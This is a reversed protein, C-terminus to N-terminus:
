MADTHIVPVTSTSSPASPKIQFSDILWRDNEKKVKIVVPTEGFEGQSTQLVITGGVTAYNPEAPDSSVVAIKISDPWPSSAERGPASTPHAEWTTYLEPTILDKYNDTIEQKLDNSNVSSLAVSKMKSGFEEVLNRIMTTNDPLSPTSSTVISSNSSTSLITPSTGCGSISVLALFGTLLYNKKSISNKM